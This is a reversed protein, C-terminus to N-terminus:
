KSYYGLNSYKVNEHSNATRKDIQNWGDFILVKKSTLSKLFDKKINKPHNNMIFIANHNFTEVKNIDLFDLDIKEIEEKSVIADYVDIHNCNEKLFHTLNLSSSGRLDNTEPLGKFALGIVLVKMNNIEFNEEKLFRKFVKIPYNSIEENIQRGLRALKAHYGQQTTSAYLLSDKTLCYGGVGPSPRAIMNRPYGENALYILENSDINFQDALMALANSFAFTLDRFSNNALKVLESSELSDTQVVFKSHTRWFSGARETCNATLGGVIQPLKRLEELAKGEVTREPTFALSFDKGANLNSGKELIYKAIERTTGVPVTSRLMVLDDSKIRKSISEIVNKLCELDAGGDHNIPTGVCVIYINSIKEPPNTFFALRDSSRMKKILEQLGPEHLPIAGNNLANILNGNVDVGKVNYGVNALSAALTLGAFGLGYIEINENM